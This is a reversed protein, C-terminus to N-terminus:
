SVTHRLYKSHPARGNDKFWAGCIEVYAVSMYYSLCFYDSVSRSPFSFSFYIFLKLLRNHRNITQTLVSDTAWATRGHRLTGPQYYFLQLSTFTFPHPRIEEEEIASRGAKPGHGGRDGEEFSRTYPEGTQRTPSIHAIFLRLWSRCNRHQFHRREEPINRLKSHYDKVSTEPCRIPGMKFPWSTWSKTVRRSSRQGQLHSRYTTGFRRYLFVVRRQTIGWLLPSMMLMASSAQLRETSFNSGEVKQIHSM